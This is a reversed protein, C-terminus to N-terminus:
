LLTAGLGSDGNSFTEPTSIGIRPLPIAQPIKREM